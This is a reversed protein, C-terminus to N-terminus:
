RRSCETWPAAARRPRRRHSLCRDSCPTAKPAGCISRTASFPHFSLTTPLSVPPSAPMALPRLTSTTRPTPWNRSGCWRSTSSVSAGRLRLGARLLHDPEGLRDDGGARLDHPQREDGLVRPNEVRGARQFQLLDGLPHQHDAPADDAQLHAGDVRREARAEVDDLHEVAQHRPRVAVEDADPLLHVLMAEVADHQPRARRRDLGPGVREPHRELAGARRLLRLGVIRHQHAHAARRVAPLDGRLLGADGDLSRPNM